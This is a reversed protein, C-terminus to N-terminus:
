VLFQKLINKIIVFYRNVTFIQTEKNSILILNEDIKLMKYKIGKEKISEM